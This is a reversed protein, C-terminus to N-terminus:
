RAGRPAEELRDAIAGLGGKGVARPRAARGGDGALARQQGLGPALETRQPHPHRQMGPLGGRIRATVVEGGREVPERPQQRGAM